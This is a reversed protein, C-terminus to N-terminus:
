LRIEKYKCSEFMRVWVRVCEFRCCAAFLRQNLGGEGRGKVGLRSYTEFLVMAQFILTM